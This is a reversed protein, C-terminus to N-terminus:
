RDNWTKYYPSNQFWRQVAARDNRFALADAEFGPIHQRFREPDPFRSGAIDIVSGFGELFSDGSPYSKM